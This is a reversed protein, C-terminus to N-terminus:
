IKDLVNMKEQYVANTQDYNSMISALSGNAFSFAFVGVLMVFSCFAREANNGGSIDGYGVTTITTITWYFSTWYLEMNSYNEDAFGEVWTGEYEEDTFSAIMLWLCSAIHCLIFFIILFFLLRELSHGIKLFDNLYKMLKSKEKMIKLIRLLRTLKVLKYLRGVRAIRLIGNANSQLNSLIVDFPIIALLDITFWGKLYNKAIIAREDQM